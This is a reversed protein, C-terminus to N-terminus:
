QSETEVEGELHEDQLHETDHGEEHGVYEHSFILISTMLTFGLVISFASQWVNGYHSLNGHIRPLLDSAALYLLNGAALGMIVWIYDEAHEAILLTFITGIVISSASYLNYLAAKFRSYGGRVLIGFEVIEQPVIHFALGITTAVGVAPDIMFATTLIVGDAVNHVADGVLLLIAAGKRDCDEAELHHYKDHLYNAFIYFGIFGLAIAIGGLEPAMALTSPILEFLIISLFVGVAMPVVYRQVGVLKKSNGFFFVGIISTLAILVSAILAEIIM